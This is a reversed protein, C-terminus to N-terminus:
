ERSRMRIAKSGNDSRNSTAFAAVAWSRRGDGIHSLDPFGACVHERNSAIVQSLEAGNARQSWLLYPAYLRRDAIEARKSVVWEVGQYQSHIGPYVRHCLDEHPDIPLTRLKILCIENQGKHGNKPVFAAFVQLTKSTSSGSWGVPFRTRLIVENLWRRILHQTDHDPESELTPLEIGHICCQSASHWCCSYDVRRSAFRPERAQFRGAVGGQIHIPPM